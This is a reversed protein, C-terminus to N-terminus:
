TNVKFAAIGGTPSREVSVTADPHDELTAALKHLADHLAIVQEVTAIAFYNWMANGVAEVSDRAEVVAM